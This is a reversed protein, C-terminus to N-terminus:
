NMIWYNKYLCEKEPNDDYVTHIRMGLTDVYREANEEIPYKSLFM